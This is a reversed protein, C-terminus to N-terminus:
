EIQKDCIQESIDQNILKVKEVVNKNNGRLKLITINKNKNNNTYLRLRM